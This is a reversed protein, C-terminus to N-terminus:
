TLRRAAAAPRRRLSAAAGHLWAWRHARREARDRARLEEKMKSFLAREIEYSTPTSRVQAPITVVSLM